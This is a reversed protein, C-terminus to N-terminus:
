TVRPEGETGASSAAAAARRPGRRHRGSPVHEGRAGAGGRQGPADCPVAAAAPRAPPHACAPPRPAKPPRLQGHRARLPVPRLPPAGAPPCPQTAAAPSGRPRWRRSTETGGRGAAGLEAPLPCKEPQRENRCPPQEVEGRRPPLNRCRLPARRRHGVPRGPAGGPRRGAERWRATTVAAAVLPQRACGAGAPRRDKHGRTRDM